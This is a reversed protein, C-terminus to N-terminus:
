ETQVAAAAAAGAQASSGGAAAAPPALTAPQLGAKALLTTYLTDVQQPTYSTGAWRLHLPQPTRDLYFAGPQLKSADQPPLPLSAPPHTPVTPSPPPSSPPSPTACALVPAASPLLAISATTSAAYCVSWGGGVELALWVVTDVGQKPTRLKAAFTKHFSPLSTRVGETDAWGPHM